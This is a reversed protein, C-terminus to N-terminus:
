DLGRNLGPDTLPPQEPGCRTLNQVVGLISVGGGRWAVQGLTQGSKTKLAKKGINVQFKMHQLKHRNGRM